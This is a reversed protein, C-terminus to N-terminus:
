EMKRDKKLVICFYRTMGMKSIIISLEYNVRGTLKIYVFSFM